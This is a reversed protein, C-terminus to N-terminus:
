GSPGETSSGIPGYVNHHTPSVCAFVALPAKPERPHWSVSCQNPAVCAFVAVPAKPPSGQPAVFRQVTSPCRM